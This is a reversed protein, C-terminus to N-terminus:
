VGVSIKAMTYAAIKHAEPPNDDEDLMRGMVRMVGEERMIGKCSADEALSCLVRSAALGAPELKLGKELNRCTMNM